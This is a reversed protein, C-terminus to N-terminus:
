TVIQCACFRSSVYSAIMRIDTTCRCAHYTPISLKMRGVAASSSTVIILAAGIATISSISPCSIRSPKHLLENERSCSNHLFRIPGCFMVMLGTTHSGDELLWTRRKCLLLRVAFYPLRLEIPRTPLSSASMGKLATPKVSKTERCSFKHGLADYQLVTASPLQM